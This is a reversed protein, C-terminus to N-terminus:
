QIMVPSTIDMDYQPVLLFFRARFQGKITLQVSSFLAVYSVGRQLM